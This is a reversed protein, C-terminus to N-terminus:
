QNSFGMGTNYGQGFMVPHQQAQQTQQMVFQGQMQQSTQPHAHHQPHPTQHQHSGPQGNYLGADGMTPMGLMPMGGDHGSSSSAPGAVLYPSSDIGGQTTPLAFPWMSYTPLGRAEALLMPMGPPCFESDFEADFGMMDTFLDHPDAPSVSPMGFWSAGMLNPEQVQRAMSETRVPVSYTNGPNSTDLMFGPGPLKMSGSFTTAMPEESSRLPTSVPKHPPAPKPGAKKEFEEVDKCLEEYQTKMSPIINALPQIFTVTSTILERITDPTVTENRNLPASSHEALDNFLKHHFAAILVKACEQICPMLYNDGLYLPALPHRNVMAQEQFMKWFRAAAVSFAVAQKQAKILFTNPLKRMLEASGSERLGPVAFQYLEVHLICIWSHVFVFIQEEPSGAWRALNQENLKLDEPLSATFSSVENQLRTVEEMVRSAEWKVGHVYATGGSFRKAVSQVHHRLNILRITYGQRSMPPSIPKSNKETLREAPVPQNAQFAQENCPLRLKMNDENFCVYADFGGACIRDMHFMHWALRRSCEQQIFTKRSGPVDWNLQLGLMVRCAVAVMQWCKAYKGVFLNHVIDLAYLSLNSENLSGVNRFLQFEVQRSCTMAFEIANAHSSVFFASVSCIAAVNTPSLTGEEIERYLTERHYFSLCPLYYANQFYADVHVKIFDQRRLLDESELNVLEMFRTHLAESSQEPSGPDAPGDVGANEPVRDDVARSNQDENSSSEATQTTQASTNVPASTFKRKAAVYECKMNNAECRKCRPQDGSCKTKHVHCNTCARQARKRVTGAETHSRSPTTRASGQSASM